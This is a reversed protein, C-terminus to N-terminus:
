ILTTQDLKPIFNLINSLKKKGGKFYIESQALASNALTLNPEILLIIKEQEEPTFNDRLLQYYSNFTSRKYFVYLVNHFLKSNIFYRYNRMIREKTKQNLELEIALKFSRKPSKIDLAADPMHDLSTLLSQRLENDLYGTQYFNFQSFYRLIKVVLADHYRQERCIRSAKEIGLLNFGDKELYVHKEKSWADIFSDILLAKELKRIVKYFSEKSGDFASEQMLENLSLIKWRSLPSLVEQHIPNIYETCNM